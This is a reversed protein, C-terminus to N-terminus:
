ERNTTIEWSKIDDETEFEGDKGISFVDFDGHEGPCRVLYDDGKKLRYVEIARSLEV